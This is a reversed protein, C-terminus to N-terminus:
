TAAPSNKNPRAGRNEYQKQKTTAASDNNRRRTQKTDSEQIAKKNHDAKHKTIDKPPRRRSRQTTKLLNHRKGLTKTLVRGHRRAQGLLRTTQSLKSTNPPVQLHYRRARGRWIGLARGPRFRRGAGVTQAQAQWTHSVRTDQRRLLARPM